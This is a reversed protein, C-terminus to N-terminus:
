ETVELEHQAIWEAMTLLDTATGEPDHYDFVISCPGGVEVNDIHTIEVSTDYGEVMDGRGWAVTDTSYGFEVWQDIAGEYEYTREPGSM